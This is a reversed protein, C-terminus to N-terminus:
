SGRAVPPLWHRGPISDLLAATAQAGGINTCDAIDGAGVLVAPSSQPSARFAVSLLFAGLLFLLSLYKM